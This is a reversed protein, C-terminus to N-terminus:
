KAELPQPHAAGALPSVGEERYYRALTALIAAGYVVCAPVWMMLGGLQQDAAPTLGWEDRLLPLVGM